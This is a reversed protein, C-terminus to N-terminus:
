ATRRIRGPSSVLRLPLTVLAWVLKLVGDVAIGVIRFPLLLLWVLPYLFLAALAIPWCLVLLICWLVFTLLKFDGKSNFVASFRYPNRPPHPMSIVGAISRPGANKTLLIDTIPCQRYPNPGRRLHNAPAEM